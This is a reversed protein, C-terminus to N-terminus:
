PPSVHWVPNPLPFCASALNLETLNAIVRHQNSSCVYYAFQSLLHALMPCVSLTPLGVNPLSVYYAFRCLLHFLMQGFSMLRVLMLRVTMLHISMTDTEDTM